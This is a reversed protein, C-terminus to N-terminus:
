NENPFMHKCCIKNLPTQAIPVQLPSQPGSNSNYKSSTIIEVSQVVCGVFEKRASDIINFYINKKINKGNGSVPGSDEGRVETNQMKRMYCSQRITLGSWQTSTRRRVWAPWQRTSLPESTKSSRLSVALIPRLGVQGLQCPQASSFESGRSHSRKSDPSNELLNLFYKQTGWVPNSFIDAM